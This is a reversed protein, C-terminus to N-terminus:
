GARPRGRPMPVSLRGCLAARGAERCDRPNSGRGGIVIAREFRPRPTRSESRRPYHRRVPREDVRPAPGTTGGPSTSSPLTSNRSAVVAPGGSGGGGGGGSGGGVQPWVGDNILIGINGNLTAPVSPSGAFAVVLDTRGDGNFDGAAIATPNLGGSALQIPAQFTGNSNGPLVSVSSTADNNATAIDLKGDGNFDGVAVGAISGSVQIIQDSLISGDSRGLIIALRGDRSGVVFDPNGDGNFDGVAVSDPGNGTGFSGKLSIIGGPGTAHGNLYISFNNESQNVVGVDTKGDHNFDGAVIAVPDHGTAASGVFNLTSPFTGGGGNLSVNV